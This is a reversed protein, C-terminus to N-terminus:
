DIALIYIGATQWYAEFYQEKTLNQNLLKQVESCYKDWCGPAIGDEPCVYWQDHEGPAGYKAEALENLKKYTM